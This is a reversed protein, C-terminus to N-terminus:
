GIMAPFFTKGRYPGGVWAMKEDWPDQTCGWGPHRRREVTKRRAMEKAISTVERAEIHGGWGEGLGGGLLMGVGWCGGLVFLLNRLLTEGGGQCDVGKPFTEAGKESEGIKTTGNAM